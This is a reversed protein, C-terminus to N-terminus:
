QPGGSAVPKVFVDIKNIIFGENIDTIKLELFIQEKRINALAIPSKDTTLSMVVPILTKTYVEVGADGLTFM